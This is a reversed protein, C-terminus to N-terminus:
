ELEAVDRRAKTADAYGRAVVLAQTLETGTALSMVLAQAFDRHYPKLHDVARAVLATDESLGTVSEPPSDSCLEDFATGLERALREALDASPFVEGREIRGISNVAVGVRAALEAQTKFGAALRAQLFRSPVVYRKAM